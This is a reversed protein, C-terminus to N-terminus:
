ENRKKRTRTNQIEDTKYIVFTSGNDYYTREELPTESKIIKTDALHYYNFVGKRDWRYEEIVYWM